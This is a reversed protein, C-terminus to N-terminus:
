VELYVTYCLQMDFACIHCISSKLTVNAVWWSQVLASGLLLYCLYYTGSCSLERSKASAQESHWLSTNHHLKIFLAFWDNHRACLIRISQSMCKAWKEEVPQVKGWVPCCNGFYRQKTPMFIELSVPLSRLNSLLLATTLPRSTSMHM